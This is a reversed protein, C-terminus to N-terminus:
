KAHFFWYLIGAIIVSKIIESTHKKLWRCLHGIPVFFWKQKIANRREAEERKKMGEPSVLYRYMEDMEEVTPGKHAIDYKKKM